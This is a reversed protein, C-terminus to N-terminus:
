FYSFHQFLVPLPTIQLLVTAQCYTIQVCFAEFRALFSSSTSEKLIKNCNQDARSLKRFFTSYYVIAVNLDLQEKLNTQDKHFIRCKNKCKGVLKIAINYKHLHEFCLCAFSLFYLKPLQTNHFAKNQINISKYLDTSFASQRKM